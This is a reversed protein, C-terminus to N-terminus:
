ADDGGKEHKNAYPNFAMMDALETYYNKREECATKELQAIKTHLRKCEERLNTDQAHLRECETQKRQLREGLKEAQFRQLQLDAHLRRLTCRHVIGDVAWTVTCGFAVLLLVYGTM